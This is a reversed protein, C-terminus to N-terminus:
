SGWEFRTQVSPAEFPISLCQNPLSAGFRPHWTGAERQLRGGTCSVRVHRHDKLALIVAGGDAETVQLDPHLHFRAQASIHAGAIEDLVTMSGPEFAWTRRHTPRGPLRQYGSHACRVMLNEVDVQLDIPYARRAVRFGGWVESSNENNIVM